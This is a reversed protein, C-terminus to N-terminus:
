YFYLANLQFYLIRATGATSATAAPPHMLLVKLWIIIACMIFIRVTHIGCLHCVGEEIVHAHKNRDLEPVPEPRKKRLAPEVPDVVSAAVHSALHVLLPISVTAAAIAQLHVPLAPVLVFFTGATLTVITLWGFVQLPHLPLQFGHERRLHRRVGDGSNPMLM